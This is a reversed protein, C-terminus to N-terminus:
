RALFRHCYREVHALGADGPGGGAITQVTNQAWVVPAVLGIVFIAVAALRITHKDM